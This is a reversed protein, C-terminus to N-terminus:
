RLSEDNLPRAHRSFVCAPPLPCSRDPFAQWGHIRLCRGRPIKPTWFMHVALSPQKEMLDQKRQKDFCKCVTAKYM